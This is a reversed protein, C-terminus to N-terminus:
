SLIPLPQLPMQFFAFIAADAYPRIAAAYLTAARSIIPPTCGFYRAAILPPM